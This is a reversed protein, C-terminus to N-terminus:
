CGGTPALAERLGAGFGNGPGAVREYHVQDIVWRGREEVVWVRDSWKAASGGEVYEFEVEVERTGLASDRVGLVSFRSWGEFNSSFMDGEIWPPKDNPHDAQCRAQLGQATTILGSLSASFHPSVRGWEEATPLGTFPAQQYATYFARVAEVPASGDAIKAPSGGCGAAVLGVSIMWARM